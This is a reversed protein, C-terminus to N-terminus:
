LRPHDALPQGALAATLPLDKAECAARSQLPGLCGPLTVEGVRHPCPQWTPSTSQQLPPSLGARELFCCAVPRLLVEPFREKWEKGAWRGQWGLPLPSTPITLHSITLFPVFASLSCELRIYLTM